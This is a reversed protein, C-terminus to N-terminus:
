SSPTVTEGKGTDQKRHQPTHKPWFRNRSWHYIRWGVFVALVVLVLAVGAGLEELASRNVSESSASLAVKQGLVPAWLVSGGPGVEGGPGAHVQGPLRGDFQFTFVSGPTQGSQGALAGPDVGVASGTASKLGGDGFCNIGCTLDVGGTLHYTTHWFTHSSALQVDFVGPGAVEALLSQAQTLGSFGHSVSVVAGGSDAEHAAPGSGRNGLATPGSVSWGAARLDQVALESRLRAVGGVADLASKDLTVTVAVTGRGSPNVTLTVKTAVGCGSLVFVLILAIAGTRPRLSM